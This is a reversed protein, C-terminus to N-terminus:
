RKRPSSRAARRTTQELAFLHTRDIKQHATTSFVSKTLPHPHYVGPFEKVNAASHPVFAEADLSPLYASSLSDATDTSLHFASVLVAVILWYELFTLMLADGPQRDHGTM